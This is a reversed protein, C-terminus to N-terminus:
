KISINPYSDCVFDVCPRHTSFSATVLCFIAEVLEGFMRPVNSLSQLLVMADVIWVADRPVAEFPPVDKELLHLLISKMTKAMQGDPIALSWPVPGLSYKLVQRLDVSRSQAIVVLRAFFIAIQM